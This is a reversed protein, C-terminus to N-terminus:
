CSGGLPLTYVAQYKNDPGVDPALISFSAFTVPGSSFSLSSGEPGAVVRVVFSSASRSVGELTASFRLAGNAAAVIAPEEAIVDGNDALAQIDYTFDAIAQAIVILGEAAVTM